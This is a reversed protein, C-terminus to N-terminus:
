SSSHISLIVTIHTASVYCNDMYHAIYLMYRYVVVPPGNVKAISGPITLAPHDVVPVWVEMDLLQALPGAQLPKWLLWAVVSDALQKM